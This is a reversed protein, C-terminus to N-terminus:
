LHKLFVSGTLNRILPIGGVHFKKLFGEFKSEDRSGHKGRGFFQLGCLSPHRRMCFDLSAQWSKHDTAGSLCPLPPQSVVSCLIADTHSELANLRGGHAVVLCFIVRSVECSTGVVVVDVVVSMYICVSACVHLGVTEYVPKCVHM